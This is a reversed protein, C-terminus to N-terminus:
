IIFNWFIFLIFPPCFFVLILYIRAWSRGNHRDVLAVGMVIEFSLIFDLCLVGLLIRGRFCSYYNRVYTAVIVHCFLIALGTSLM